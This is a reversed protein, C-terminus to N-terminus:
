LTTPPTKKFHPVQGSKNNFHSVQGSKLATIKAESTESSAKIAFYGAGLSLILAFASIMPVTKM